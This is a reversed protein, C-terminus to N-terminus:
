AVPGAPKGAATALRKAVVGALVVRDTEALPSGASTFVLSAQIRGQQLVIADLYVTVSQGAGAAVSAVIRYAVTKPAVGPFSIRKASRVRIEQGAPASLRIVDALCTTVQKGTGRSFSANAERLTRYVHVSSGATLLVGPRQLRFDPSDAKGTITLDSESLPGCRAGAPIAQDAHKVGTFGDGLDARVLLVSRALALDAKTFARKPEGNAAWATGTLALGVVLVAALARAVRM